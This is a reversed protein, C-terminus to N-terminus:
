FKLVQQPRGHKRCYHYARREQASQPKKFYLYGVSALVEGHGLASVGRGLVDLRRASLYGVAGSFYEVGVLQVAAHLELFGRQFASRFVLDDVANKGYQHLVAVLPVFGQGNGSRLGVLEFLVAVVGHIRQFGAHLQANVGRDLVAHVGEVLVVLYGVLVLLRHAAADRSDAVFHLQLSEIVVIGVLKGGPYGAVRHQLQLLKGREHGAHLDGLAPVADIEVAGGRRMDPSRDPRYGRILVGLQLAGAVLQVVYDACRTDLKRQFGRQAALAAGALYRTVGVAHHDGVLYGLLRLRPLGYHQRYVRVELVHHLSDHLVVHIEQVGRVVCRRHVRVESALIGLYAGCDHQVDPVARHQRHRRERAVIYVLEDLVVRGNQVSLVGRQQVARYVALVTGAGCELGDGRRRTKRLTNDIGGASDVARPPIHVVRRAVGRATGSNM